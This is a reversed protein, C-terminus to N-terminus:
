VVPRRGQEGILQAHLSRMENLMEGAREQQPLDGSQLMSHYHREAQLMMERSLESVAQTIGQQKGVM